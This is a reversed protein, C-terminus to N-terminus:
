QKLTWRSFFEKIVDLLTKGSEVPEPQPEPEPKKLEKTLRDVEKQLDLIKQKDINDDSLAKDLQTQVVDLQKRSTALKDQETVVTKRQSIAIQRLFKARGWSQYKSWGNAYNFYDPIYGYIKTVDEKYLAYGKNIDKYATDMYSWVRDGVKGYIKSLHAYVVYVGTDTKVKVYNGWASAFGTEVIIGPQFTYKTPNITKQVTVEKSAQIHCHPGSVNGTDGTLGIKLRDTKSEALPIGIPTFRDNGRHSIAIFNITQNVPGYYQYLTPQGASNWKIPNTEGYGFGVPYDKLTKQTM